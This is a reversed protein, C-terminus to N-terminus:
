ADGAEKNRSVTEPTRFGITPTILYETEAGDVKLRDRPLAFLDCALEVIREGTAREAALANRLQLREVPQVAILLEVGDVRLGRLQDQEMSHPEVDFAAPVATAMPDPVVVPRRDNALLRRRIADIAPSLRDDGSSETLLRAAPSRPPIRSEGKGPELYMSALLGLVLAAATAPPLEDLLGLLDVLAERYGAQGAEARDHLARALRALAVQDMGITAGGALVTRFTGEQEVNARVAGLIAEGRDDLPERSLLLAKDMSTRGTKVLPDDAMLLGSAGADRARTAADAASKEADEASRRAVADRRQEKRGAEPEPDPVIAVDAFSQVRDAAVDRLYAALYQSDLLSVDGIGFTSAELALMPHIRPVPKWSKRIALMDEDPGGGEGGMRWDDKRDNTLVVVAEANRDAADALVEKWFILDGYRNAGPLAASGEEGDTAGGPDDGKKDADRYGPPIRGEYRAAGETTITAFGDYLAGVALGTENIYAIIEAAHVPYSQQWKAAASVLRGLRNVADRTSTRLADSAEEFAIAPEDLFPRFYAFTGNAMASLEQSRKVLDNVITRSVHHRLYEHGAWTPVHARAGLEARLWDLLQGRSAPGIKTAWMLFSTDIYVHTAPRALLTGIRAKFTAADESTVPIELRASGVRPRARGAPRAGTTRRGRASTAAAGEGEPVPLLM